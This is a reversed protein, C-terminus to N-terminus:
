SSNFVTATLFFFDEGACHRWQMFKSCNIKCKFCKSCWSFYGSTCTFDCNLNEHESIELSLGLGEFSSHTVGSSCLQTRGKFGLPRHRPLVGLLYACVLPSGDCPLECPGERQTTLWFCCFIFLIICVSGALLTWLHPLPVLGLWAWNFKEWGSAGPADSCTSFSNCCLLM